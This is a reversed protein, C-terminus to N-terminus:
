LQTRKFRRSELSTRFVASFAWLDSLKAHLCLDVHLCMYLSSPYQERILDFNTLLFQLKGETRWKILVILCTRSFSSENNDWKKKKQCFNAWNSAFLRTMQCNHFHNELSFRSINRQLILRLFIEVILAHDEIM